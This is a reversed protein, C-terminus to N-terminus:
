KQKFNRVREQELVSKFFKELTASATPHLSIFARRGDLPDDTRVLMGRDELLSIWRLATTPPVAAALCLNSITVRYQEHEAHKLELLIDWAPDAFLDDAFFHTRFARVRRIVDILEKETSFLSDINEAQRPLHALQSAIAELERALRSVESLTRETRPMERVSKGHHASFVSRLKDTM